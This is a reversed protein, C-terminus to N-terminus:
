PYATLMAGMTPEVTEGPAARFSLPLSEVNM